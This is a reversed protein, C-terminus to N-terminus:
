LTGEFIYRKIMMLNHFADMDTHLMTEYYSLHFKWASSIFYIALSHYVSVLSLVEWVTKSAFWADLFWRLFAQGCRPARQFPPWPIQTWLGALQLSSFTDTDDIQNDIALAGLQHFSTFLDISIQAVSEKFFGGHTISWYAIFGDLFERIVKSIHVKVQFWNREHCGCQCIFWIYACGFQLCLLPLVSTVSSQEACAVVLLACAAFGTPHSWIHWIM